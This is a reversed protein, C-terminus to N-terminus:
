WPTNQYPSSSVPTGGPAGGGHEGSGYTNSSPARDQAMPEEDNELIYTNEDDSSSEWLYSKGVGKMSVYIWMGVAILFIASLPVIYFMSWYFFMRGDFHVKVKYQLQEGTNSNYDIIVCNKSSRKLTFHCEGGDLLCVQAGSSNRDYVSLEMDYQANVGLEKADQGAPRSWVFYYVDSDRVPLLQDDTSGLSSRVANQRHRFDHYGEYIHFYLLKNSLSTWSVSLNSGANIYFSSVSDIGFLVPQSWNLFSRRVDLPQPCDPYWIAANTSISGPGKVQVRSTWTTGTRIRLSEFDYVYYTASFGWPAFLLLIIALCIMVCLISPISLPFRRTDFRNNGVILVGDRFLVSNSNSNSNGHGSSINDVNGVASEEGGDGDGITSYHDVM